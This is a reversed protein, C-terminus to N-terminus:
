GTRTGTAEQEADAAPADPPEPVTPARGAHHLVARADSATGAAVMVETLMTRLAPHDPGRELAMVLIAKAALHDGTELAIRAKLCGARWAPLAGDTEANSLMDRATQIAGTALAADIMTELSDPQGQQGAIRAATERAGARDGLEVQARLMLQLLDLRDPARALGARVRELTRGPRQGAPRDAAEDVDDNIANQHTM